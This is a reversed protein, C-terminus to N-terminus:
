IKVNKSDSVESKPRKNPVGAQEEEEETALVYNRKLQQHGGSKFMGDDAHNSLDAVDNGSIEKKVTFSDM